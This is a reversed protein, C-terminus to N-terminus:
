PYKKCAGGIRQVFMLLRNMLIIRRFSTMSEVPQAPGSDVLVDRFPGEGLRDRQTVTADAPNFALHM